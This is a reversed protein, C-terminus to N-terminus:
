LIKIFELNEEKKIEEDDKTFDLAMITKIRFDHNLYTIFSAEKEERIDNIFMKGVPTSNSYIEIM